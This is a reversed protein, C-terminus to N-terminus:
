ITIKCVSCSSSQDIPVCINLKNVINLSFTTEVCGLTYDISNYPLHFTYLYDIPIIKFIPHYYISLINLTLTFSFQACSNMNWCIDVIQYNLNEHNIIFYCLIHAFVDQRVELRLRGGEVGVKVTIYSVVLSCCNSKFHCNVM